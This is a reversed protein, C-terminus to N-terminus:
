AQRRLGIAALVWAVALIAFGAAAPIMGEALGDLM